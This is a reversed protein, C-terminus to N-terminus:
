MKASWRRMSGIIRFRTNKPLSFRTKMMEIMVSKEQPFLHDVNVLSIISFFIMFIWILLLCISDNHHSISNWCRIVYLFSFIDNRRNLHWPKQKKKKKSRDTKGKRTRGTEILLYELISQSTHIATFIMKKKKPM